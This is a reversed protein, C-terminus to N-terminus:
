SDVFSRLRKSRSPHRLKRLAKAEIQRIRERTVEFDQGVEELTHDSKEGIGFRMRLVKEERPTLTALVKRTQEALNMNIVAESPSVLSKDEIFDGLHSDEEEGIPTELSIPEKAIKLVKRVKDLPLEMKEAIEEPTPERGIEQVLYRSTRILKNITEIMHVPIRITRAQDAIARTIAQRIWWTAYTSFKYGRKYEFKDVAKMLGINGEQILDLFQLGRNTYKKAISVVLRLNAEVLEAKAREAKREGIRIADYNRRLADIPLNAEEEVKKIKRYATRVDRDLGEVQEPTMNLRRQLRKAPLPNERADRLQTKLEELPIGVRHEHERLEHEAKEVHDILARLHAVIRDIQKKNLRMEELVEMMKLRADKVGQKIEKRRVESIKKKAILDEELVEVDKAFKRIREVQKCIQEIRNLENQNLQQQHSEGEAPESEPEEGAEPTPEEPADKVVERIRLKGSKLKVGIDLIEAVSVKCALLARLVEKEGDEIRKAIEVEGERTLLAVSGMKRLYLRVPDNSRGGPEDDEDKAEEEDGDKSPEEVHAVTPKAETAKAAKQADVIEIENDGFMSMVDDIQESSVIDAPLADNVEDYTLFGKQRGAELLDKVEKRDAIPEEQVEEAVADPDVEVAAALEDAAEEPDIDDASAETVGRRHKKLKEKAQVEARALRPSKARRAPAPKRRKDKKHPTKQKSM